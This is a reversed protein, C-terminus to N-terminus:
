AAKKRKKEDDSVKKAEEVADKLKDEAAKKKQAAIRDVITDFDYKWKINKAQVHMWKPAREWGDVFVERMARKVSIKHQLEDKQFKISEYVLEELQLISFDWAECTSLSSGIEFDIELDVDFDFGHRKKVEERVGTTLAHEVHGLNELFTAYPSKNELSDHVSNCIKLGTDRKETKKIKWWTKDLVRAGIAMFQAGMGQVPSNVSRRDMDGSIKSAHPAEEPLLYGWLHRRLGLPSEVYFNKKAFAKVDESWKMAKPFRKQFNGVLNKTFDLSKKLNGALTKVAMQYIIGFVVAKVNNRLEKDVKEVPVSFFYAANIVHVDAEQKLRKGLKPDPMRRYEDRMDKAKQFVSALAKDFSILGWCRVEHVRYDVKIYLHGEEAVFLRKIQKGLASRAPIQQLNPDRAATRGTVVGLYQYQPRIRYDSKFDESSGLLRIFSNVYSDRLKKAKGLNQFMAVEPVDKYLEQFHKDVKGKDNKGKELAELGLVDFFLLQKHEPKTLSFVETTVEGMWGHSSIGKSKMLIKNAKRVAKTQLLEDQLKNLELEIPSGPTKLYFLYNVDIMNGNIEMRSFTHLMDSIQQTVMGEFKAHGLREALALQQEHIAFPVVVDKTCYEILASDLDRSEITARDGKGFDATLYGTYGYQVSLNGLSYYYNGTVAQLFKLNEDLVFEGALIDYLDNRFFRIGLQSRFVNLDFGANTYIHYKNKNKGEFFRRLRKKIYSLEDALFPSDKHHIPILYGFDQCKAFQVTLLKNAIRNLNSTESDVAVKPAKELVDMLKDFKKITDIVVSKHKALRKADIKFQHENSIANALNRGFYGLLASEGSQGTAMSNLSMSSYFTVEQDKIKKKRPVGLWPAHKGKTLDLEDQYFYETPRSGLLVVVDPKYRGIIFEIRKGFALQANNQFSTPKGATRFANYSCALWSFKKSAKLYMRESVQRIITQLLKGQVGSLLKGSRLDETPVYDLVFLVKPHDGGTSYTPLKLHQYSEIDSTDFSKFPYELTKYKVSGSELSIPM